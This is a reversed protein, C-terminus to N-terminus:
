NIVKSVYMKLDFNVPEPLFLENLECGQCECGSPHNVAEEMKEVMKKALENINVKNLFHYKCSPSDGSAQHCTCKIEVSSHSM